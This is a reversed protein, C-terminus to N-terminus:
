SATSSDGDSSGTSGSSVAFSRCSSSRSASGIAMAATSALSARSTGTILAVGPRRTGPPKSPKSSTSRAITPWCTM